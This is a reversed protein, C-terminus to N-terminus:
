SLMNTIGRCSKHHQFDSVLNPRHMFSDIYGNRSFSRTYDRPNIASASLFPGSNFGSYPDTNIPRNMVKGASVLFAGVNEYIVGPFGHNIPGIDGHSAENYPAFDGPQTPDASRLVSEVEPAPPFFTESKMMARLVNPWSWMGQAEPGLSQLLSAWADQEVANQRVLYMGNIASSGGLVKGRNWVVQRNDLGVQPVTWYQWDRETYLSSQYLQPLRHAPSCQMKFQLVQSVNSAPTMLADNGYGAKGAEIVAVTYAPNESLRSAIVLGSLGGGVVVYDFTQDNFEAGNATLHDAPLASALLPSVILPVAAVLSTLSRLMGATTIPKQRRSAM